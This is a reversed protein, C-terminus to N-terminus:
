SFRDYVPVERTTWHNPTLVKVPASRLWFVFCSLVFFRDFRDYM